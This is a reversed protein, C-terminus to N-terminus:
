SCICNREALRQHARELTDAAFFRDHKLHDVLWRGFLSLGVMCVCSNPLETTKLYTLTHTSVHKMTLHARSVDIILHPHLCSSAAALAYTQSIAQEIQQWTFHYEIKWHILGCAQDLWNVYIAM